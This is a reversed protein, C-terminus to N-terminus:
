SPYPTNSETWRTKGNTHTATLSIKCTTLWFRVDQHQAHEYEPPPQAQKKTTDGIAKELARSFQLEDWTAEEEM